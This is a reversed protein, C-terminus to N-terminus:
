PLQKFALSRCKASASRLPMSMIIDNWENLGPAYRGARWEDMAKM